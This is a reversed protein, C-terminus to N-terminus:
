PKGLFYFESQRFKKYLYWCTECKIPFPQRLYIIGKMVYYQETYHLYPFPEIILLILGHTPQMLLPEFEKKFNKKFLVPDLM